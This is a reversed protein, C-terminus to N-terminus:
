QVSTRMMELAFRNNTLLCAKLYIKVDGLETSFPPDLAVLDPLARMWLMVETVGAEIAYTAVCTRVKVEMM